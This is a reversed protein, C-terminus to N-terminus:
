GKMWFGFKEVPFVGVALWGLAPMNVHGLHPTDPFLGIAPLLLEIEAVLVLRLDFVASVIFAGM